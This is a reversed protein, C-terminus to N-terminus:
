RLYLISITTVILGIASLIVPYVPYDLLDRQASKRPLPDKQYYNLKQAVVLKFSNM